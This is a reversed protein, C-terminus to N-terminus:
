NFNRRTSIYIYFESVRQSGSYVAQRLFEDTHREQKCYRVKSLHIFTISGSTIM